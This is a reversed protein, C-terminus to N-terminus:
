EAETAIQYAANKLRDGDGFWAANLRRAKDSGREHDVLQTVANIWNWKTFGAMDAGIAGGDFLEMIRKYGKNATVDVVVGPKAKMMPEILKATMKAAADLNIESQALMRTQIIWKDFSNAFIGLDTQVQKADFTMNHNVKVQTAIGRGGRAKDAETEYLAATITNNCVVRIATLKATTAMTGDYSTSLLLYPLVLDNGLIPAGDGIKALAWIRKGDSLAGATELNFGGVRVLKDFFGMVQEPQVIKYNKGVVGLAGHTDSRYLVDREKMTGMLASEEISFNVPSRLVEWALGAERTWDGISADVTLRQGLGHWPTEGVFAIAAMGATEDILHAM